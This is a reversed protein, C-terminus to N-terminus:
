VSPQLTGSLLVVNEALSPPRESSLHDRFMTPPDILRNRNRDSSDSCLVALEHSFSNADRICQEFVRKIFAHSKVTENSTKSLYVAFLISLLALAAYYFNFCVMSVNAAINAVATNGLQMMPNMLSTTCQSLLFVMPLGSAFSMLLALTVAAGKTALNYGRMLDDSLRRYTVATTLHLKLQELPGRAANISLLVSPSLLANAAVVSTYSSMRWAKQQGADTSCAFILAGYAMWAIYLAKIVWYSATATRSVAPHIVRPEPFRLTGSLAMLLDYQALRNEANGLDHALAITDSDNLGSLQFLTYLTEVNSVVNPKGAYLRKIFAM